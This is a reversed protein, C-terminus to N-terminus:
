TTAKQAHEQRAAAWLAEDEGPGLDFSPQIKDHLRPPMKELLMSAISKPSYRASFHMLLLTNVRDFLGRHGLAALQDVHIHGHDEAKSIDGDFFTVEMCLTKARLFPSEPDRELAAAVTDGTYAFDVIEHMVYDEPKPPSTKFRTRKEAVSLEALEPRLEKKTNIVAYGVSPVRHETALVAVRTNGNLEVSDGPKVGAIKMNFPDQTNDDVDGGDLAQMARGASRFDEVAEAPMYVRTEQRSQMARTRALLFAAACHDAHGHSIFVHGASGVGGAAEASGFRGADFLLARRKGLGKYLVTTGLGARSWVRVPAALEHGSM